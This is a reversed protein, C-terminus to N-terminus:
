GKGKSTRGHRMQRAIDNAVDMVRGQTRSRRTESDQGGCYNQELREQEWLTAQRM